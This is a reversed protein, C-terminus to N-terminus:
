SNNKPWLGVDGEFVPAKTLCTNRTGLVTGFVPYNVAVGSVM